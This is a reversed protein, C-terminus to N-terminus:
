VKNHYASIVTNDQSKLNSIESNSELQKKEQSTAALRGMEYLLEHCTAHPRRAIVTSRYQEKNPAQDEQFPLRNRPASTIVSHFHFEPEPRHIKHFNNINHYSVSTSELTAPKQQGTFNVSPCPNPAFNPLKIRKALTLSEAESMDFQRSQKHSAKAINVVPQDSVPKENFNQLSDSGTHSLSNRLNLRQHQIEQESASLRIARQYAERLNDQKQSFMVPLQSASLAHNVPSTRNQLFSPQQIYTVQSQSTATHQQPVHNHSSVTHQQPVHQHLQFPSQRHPTTVYFVHGMPHVYSHGGYLYDKHLSAYNQQVSLPELSPTKQSYGRVLVSNRLKTFGGSPDLSSSDCTVKFHNGVEKHVDIDEATKLNSATQERNLPTDYKSSHPSDIGSKSCSAEGKTQQTGEKRSESTSVYGININEDDTDDDTISIIERDDKSIELKIGVEQKNSSKQKTQDEEYKLCGMAQSSWERVKNLEIDQSAKLSGSKNSQFGPVFYNIKNQQTQWEDNGNRLCSPRRTAEQNAQAVSSQSFHAANFITRNLHCATVDSSSSINQPFTTQQVSTQPVSSTRHEQVIANNVSTSMNQCINSNSYKLSIEHPLVAYSNGVSVRQKSDSQCNFPKETRLGHREVHNFDKINLDKSLLLKQANPNPPPKRHHASESSSSDPNLCPQHGKQQQAEFYVSAPRNPKLPRLGQGVCPAFTVAPYALSYLGNIPHNLSKQPECVEQQLKYQQQIRKQLPEMRTQMEVKSLETCESHPSVGPSPFVDQKITQLRLDDSSESRSGTENTDDAEEKTDEDSSGYRLVDLRTELTKNGANRVADFGVVQDSEVKQIDKEDSFMGNTLEEEDIVEKWPFHKNMSKTFCKELARAMTTYENKKGNYTKCNKFMLVFDAVFEERTNYQKECMKKEITTLDMAEQIISYYGPAFAEDVPELFPWSDKHNKVETLVKQMLVYKDEDLYLLAIKKKIKQKKRAADPSDLIGQSRLVAREERLRHRREREERAYTRQEEEFRKVDERTIIHQQKPPPSPSSSSSPSPPSPPINALREEQEQILAILEQRELEEQIIRKMQIRFSTRKPIVQSLKKKQMKEKQILLNGIEPIFNETLIKCLKREKSSKSSKFSEALNQWEDLSQCLLSWTGRQDVYIDQRSDNACCETTMETQLHDENDELTTDTNGEEEKEEEKEEEEKEEEEEEEKEEEEEEESSDVVPLPTVLSDAQPEIPKSPDVGTPTVPTRSNSGSDM